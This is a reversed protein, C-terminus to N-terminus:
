LFLVICQYKKGLAEQAHSMVADVVNAVRKVVGEGENSIVSNVASDTLQAVQERSLLNVTTATRATTHLDFFHVFPTSLIQSSIHSIIALDHAEQPTTSNVVAVGTHQIAVINAVSDFIINYLVLYTHSIVSILSLLFTM